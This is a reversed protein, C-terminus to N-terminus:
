REQPLPADGDDCGGAENPASLEVVREGDRAKKKAVAVIENVLRGPPHKSFDPLLVTGGCSSEEVGM